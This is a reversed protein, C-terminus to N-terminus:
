NIVDSGVLVLTNDRITKDQLVVSLRKVLRLAEQVDLTTAFRFVPIEGHEKAYKAVADPGTGDLISEDVALIYADCEVVEGRQSPEGYLELAVPWYGKGAGGFSIARVGDWGDISITGRMDGYQVSARIEDSM